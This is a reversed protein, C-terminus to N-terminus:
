RPEGMSATRSAYYAQLLSQGSDVFQQCVYMHNHRNLRQADLLRRWAAHVPEPAEARRNRYLSRLARLATLMTVHEPNYVGSFGEGAFPPMMSPRILAHYESRPVASTYRMVATAADYLRALGLLSTGAAQWQRAELQAVAADLRTNMTALLLHFVHHGLKWRTVADRQAVTLRDVASTM